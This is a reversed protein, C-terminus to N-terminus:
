KAIDSAKSADGLDQSKDDVNRGFKTGFIELYEPEQTQIAIYNLEHKALLDLEAAAPNPNSRIRDLLAKNLALFKQQHSKGLIAEM